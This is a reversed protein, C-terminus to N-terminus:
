FLELTEGSPPGASIERLNPYQNLLTPPIPVPQQFLGVSLQLGNVVAQGRFHNNFIVFTRAATEAISEIREIWEALESDQYCYDYRDDRGAQDNFWNRQNRGHLRVYGVRSTVIKGPAISSGIVPQDINVWAIGHDALRAHVEPHDWSGHRFEVAPSYLIFKEALQMVQNTTVDSRKFRWPFQILLAGLRGEEHLVDLATQFSAVIRPSPESPAHTFGQWLKVTFVFNPNGKVQNLWLRTHRIEPIRYFSSNIEATNFFQALYTLESFGSKVGTPYVIGRWDDYHWGAPGILIEKM